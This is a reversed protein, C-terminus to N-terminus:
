QSHPQWFRVRGQKSRCGRRTLRVLFCALNAVMKMTESFISRVHKRRKSGIRARRDAWTIVRYMVRGFLKLILSWDCVQVHVRNASGM